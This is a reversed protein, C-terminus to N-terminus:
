SSMNTGYQHGIQIHLIRHESRTMQELHNINMCGKNFCKHHIHNGEEIPGVFLKYMMPAANCKVKNTYCSRGNLNKNGNWGWCENDTDQPLIIYMWFRDRFSKTHVKSIKDKAEKTHHKGYMFHKNGSMRESMKKCTEKSLKMGTRAISQKKRTEDPTTLGKNWAFTGEKGRKIAEGHEKTRVYVGTPM